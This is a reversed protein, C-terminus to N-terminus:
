LLAENWSITAKPKIGANKSITDAQLGRCVAKEKALEASFGDGCTV